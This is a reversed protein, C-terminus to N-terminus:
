SQVTQCSFFTLHDQPCSCFILILTASLSSVLSTSFLLSLLTTTHVFINVLNVLKVLSSLSSIQLDPVFSSFSLQQCLPYWAPPSSCLSYLPPTFLSTTELDFLKAFSSLSSIQLVPSFLHSHSNSVFLIGPQHLLAFLIFHHHSCLHQSLISCNPLLLFHLSRSSLPFFILVLSASLFSVPGLNYFKLENEVEFYLAIIPQKRVTDAVQWDNHKKKLRLSYM